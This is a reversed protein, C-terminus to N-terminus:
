DGGSPDTDDAQEEEKSRLRTRWQEAKVDYGRAPEATNWAEYLEVVRLVAEAKDDDLATNALEVLITEAERLKEIRAALALSPDAGQRTLCEGLLRRTTKTNRFWVEASVLAKERISLCERLLPEADAAQDNKLLATGYEILINTLWLEDAPTAARWMDLHERWVEVAKGPRQLRTWAKALAKVFWWRAPDSQFASAAARHAREYDAQSRDDDNVIRWAVGSLRGPSDRIWRAMNVAAAHVAPELSTDSQVAARVAEQIAAAFILRVELEDILSRAQKRIASCRKLVLNLAAHRHLESLSVDTRVRDAVASCDLGKSFLEDVFPSITQEARRADDREAVRDRYAVTDWLRVTEDVSASVIRSGDPSFAVSRLMEEHGRLVRLEEGSDADWLRVTKDGAGSAIRSGDPSFAVSRVGSEHGRLVRLEESSDADWLRVTKDGSGTALRSGDPSFAVSTVGSDGRLVFLEDGNVADWIRVSGNESMVWTRSASAIRLGDPSFVVSTVNEEHGRLVLLEDGGAADWLRVTNDQSASAIRSGDPSFAVSFVSKEHGRLVLLEEGSAADWLRVTNDWSGSAIRSGDPSFVVSSVINEHGRLVLLEEGSTADWLRVTKDDAGSAIRSGDPSFAVSRVGSEHGRLVAFDDSISADWLRM